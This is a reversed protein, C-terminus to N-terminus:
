IDCIYRQVTKTMWLMQFTGTASQGIYKQLSALVLCQLGALTGVVYGLDEWLWLSGPGLAFLIGAM